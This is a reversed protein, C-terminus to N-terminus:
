AAGALENGEMSRSDPHRVYCAYHHLVMIRDLFRELRQELEEVSLPGLVRDRTTFTIRTGRPGHDTQAHCEANRILTADDDLLETPGRDKWMNQLDCVLKRVYGPVDRDRDTTLRFLVQLTPKYIHEALKSILNACERARHEPGTANSFGHFYPLCELFGRGVGEELELMLDEYRTASLGSDRLTEFWSHLEAAGPKAMLEDVARRTTARFSEVFKKDEFLPKLWIKPDGDHALLGGMRAVLTAPENMVADNEGLFGIATALHSRAIMERMWYPLREFRAEGRLRRVGLEQSRRMAMDFLLEQKQVLEARLRDGFGQVRLGITLEAFAVDAHMCELQLCAESDPDPEQALLKELGYRAKSLRALEAEDQFTSSLRAAEVLHRHIRVWLECVERAEPELQRALEEIEALASRAEDWQHGKRFGIVAQFRGKMFEAIMSTM